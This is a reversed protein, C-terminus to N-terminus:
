IEFDVDISTILDTRLSRTEIGWSAQQGKKARGPLAVMELRM